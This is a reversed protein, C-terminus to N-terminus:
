QPKTRSRILTHYPAPDERVAQQLLAYFLRGPSRARRRNFRFTFEDLYYELHDPGIRGHHTGLLWRKLLAAVRHVRPLEQVAAPKPRGALSVPRHRYGLADLGTYAALGDTIVTSGPEISQSVFQHLKPRTRDLLPALRIRGIASAVCEAAIAVLYKRQGLSAGWTGPEPGGVITEDVEVSGQLLTRGSLVMARRLKHLWAWATQYSRLGLSRQVSAASAGNKQSVVQWIAHFWLRLPLRTDQFVTGATVTAQHRCDGCVFRGRSAAWGAKGQCRPCVFGEPWRLWVLYARCRDEDPFMRDLEAVTHPFAGAM